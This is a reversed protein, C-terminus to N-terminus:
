SIINYLHGFQFIRRARDIDANITLPMNDVCLLAYSIVEKRGEVCVNIMNGNM